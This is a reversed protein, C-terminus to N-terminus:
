TNPAPRAQPSSPALLLTWAQVAAFIQGVSFRHYPARHVYIAGQPLDVLGEWALDLELQGVGESPDGPHPQPVGLDGTQVIHGVNCDPEPAAAPGENVIHLYWVVRVGHGRGAQEIDRADAGAGGDKGNEGNGLRGGDACQVVRGADRVDIQVLFSILKFEAGRDGGHIIQLYVQVLWRVGCRRGGKQRVIGPRIHQCDIM